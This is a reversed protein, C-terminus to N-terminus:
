SITGEESFEEPSKQSKGRRLDSLPVVLFTGTQPFPVQGVEHSTVTVSGM